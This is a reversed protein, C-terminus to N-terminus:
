KASLVNGIYVEDVEEPKVNTVRELAAVVNLLSRTKSLSQDYMQDCTLGIPNSDSKFTFQM